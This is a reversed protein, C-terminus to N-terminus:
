FSHGVIGVRQAKLSEGVSLCRSGCPEGSEFLLLTSCLRELCFLRPSGFSTNCVGAAFQASKLNRGGAMDRAIDVIAKLLKTRPIIRCRSVVSIFMFMASLM